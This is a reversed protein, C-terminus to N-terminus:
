VVSYIFYPHYVAWGIIIIAGTELYEFIADRTRLVTHSKCIYQLGNRISHGIQPKNGSTTIM